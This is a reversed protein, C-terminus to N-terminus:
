STVPEIEVDEGADALVSQAVDRGFRFRVADLAEIESRVAPVPIPGRRKALLLVDLTGVVHLGPSHALRRARRDDLVVGPAARELALSTAESEGPDPAAWVIARDLPLSLPREVIWPPLHPLTPAVERVVAPPVVIESFLRYLLDLRDIQALAIPPGADAVFPGRSM